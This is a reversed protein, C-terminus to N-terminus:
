KGQDSENSYSNKLLHQKLHKFLEKFIICVLCKVATQQSCKENFDTLKVLFDIQRM